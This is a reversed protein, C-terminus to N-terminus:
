SFEDRFRRQLDPCYRRWCDLYHKVANKRTCRDDRLICTGDNDPHDPDLMFYECLPPGILEETPVSRSTLVIRAPGSTTKLSTSWSSSAIKKGGLTIAIPVLDHTKM